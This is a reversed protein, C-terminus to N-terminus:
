EPVVCGQLLAEHCPLPGDCSGSVSAAAAGAIGVDYRGQVLRVSYTGDGSRPLPVVVASPGQAVSPGFTRAGVDQLAFRLEGRERSSAMLRQGDLTVTGSLTVVPVDLDLVLAGPTDLRQMPRLLASQCPLADPACGQRADVGVAYVGPFLVAGYRSPAIPVAVVDGEVERHFWVTGLTEGAGGGLPAGNMTVAGGLSVLPLDFTRADNSGIPWSAALERTQCPLPGESCSGGGRVSVAYHGPFLRAVVGAAGHEGLPKAVAGSVGGGAAPAFVITGHGEGGSRLPSGNATLTVGVDYVPVDIALPESGAVRANSLVLLAQCPFPGGDCDTGEVYVDYRGVYLRAEFSGAGGPTLPVVAKGDGDVFSVAGLPRRADSLRAGNSTVTGTVRAVELDLDIVRDEDLVLQQLRRRSQCPLPGDECREPSDLGLEYRGAYVLARWSAPGSATLPVRVTGHEDSRLVIAGRSRRSPSRGLPEGGVRVEGSLMLVRAELSVVADATVAVDHLLLAESCPLPGAAVKCAPPGRVVADYRGHPLEVEFLAAGKAGLTATAAVVGTEDVFSVSGREARADALAEDNVRLEGSVRARTPAPTSRVDFDVAGSVEVLHSASLVQEGCPLLGSRCDDSKRFVVRYVGSLLTAQWEPAGRAPLSVVLPRKAGLGFFLLSGRTAGPPAVEGDLLLRGSLSVSKLDFDRTGSAHVDLGDCRTECGNWATGDTDSFGPHCADVACGTALCTSEANALACNCGGDATDPATCAGAACSEGAACARCAAGGRGCQSAGSDAVCQGDPTCCSDCTDPGCPRTGCGPLLAVSALAVLAAFAARRFREAAAHGPVATPAREHSRHGEIDLVRRM